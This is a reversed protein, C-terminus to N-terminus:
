GEGECATPGTLEPRGDAVIVAPLLCAAVDGAPSVVVRAVATSAGAPSLRPWVFNGLTWFVPRGGIWELGGLRHPHHGFVVDAGAAVLAEAAARDAPDPDTVLETGWHVTVVVFDAAADAASVAAVMAAADDGSAMGPRDPGALWGAHPVVGGFGVVAVTWGDATVLAPAAAAAADAGVGVARMGTAEVRAVGDLLADVGFDGSHNNALNAVDVGHARAVPLAAPDCRFTFEKDEPIGLDSPACELNVVTVSDRLFLGGLGTFARGFGDTRFAPIYHPDLSVDGVGQVVLTGRADARTAPPTAPTEAAPAAPSPPIAPSPAASSAPGSLVFGVAGVLTGLVAAPLLVPLIRRRRRSASM